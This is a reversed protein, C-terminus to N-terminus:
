SPIAPTSDPLMGKDIHGVVRFKEKGPAAKRNVLWSIFTYLLIAFTLRLSSLFSWVRKHIPQRVEMKACASKIIHLLVICTIGIAADLKATPLGKLTNVYIKYPAERTNIGTIGL